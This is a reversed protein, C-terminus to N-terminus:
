PLSRYKRLKRRISLPIDHDYSESQGAKSSSTLGESGTLNLRMVCLDYIPTVIRENLDDGDIYNIYDLVDNVADDIVSDKYLSDIGKLTPNIEVKEAAIDKITNINAM